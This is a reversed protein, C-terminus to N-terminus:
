TAYNERLVKLLNIGETSTPELDHLRCYELWRVEMKRAEDYDAFGKADEVLIFESGVAIHIDWAQTEEDFLIESARKISQKGLFGLNFRDRHMAEVAGDPRFDIVMLNTTQM